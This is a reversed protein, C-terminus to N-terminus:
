ALGFEMMLTTDVIDSWPNHAVDSIVPFTSDVFHQLFEKMAATKLGVGLRDLVLFGQQLIDEAIDQLEAILFHLFPHCCVKNIQLDYL